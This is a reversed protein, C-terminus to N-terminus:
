VRISYCASISFRSMEHATFVSELTKELYEDTANLLLKEVKYHIQGIQKGHMLIWVVINDWDITDTAIINYGFKPIKTLKVKIEDNTINPYIRLANCGGSTLLQEDVLKKCSELM